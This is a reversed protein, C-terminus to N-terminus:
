REVTINIRIPYVMECPTGQCFAPKYEQDVVLHSVARVLEKSPEGYTTVNKAKGDKGILVNVALFGNEVGANDNVRTLMELLHGQGQTPFPPDDGAELAPYHARMTNRQPETLANWNAHPPLSGVAAEKRIQTGMRAEKIAYRGTALERPAVGAVRGDEFLGEYSRGSGAYVMKGQGHFVDHQWAGAYSGGTSFSAEGWGSREGLVWEGAYRSRDVALRIGKGHPIGAAVQGEYWGKNDAYEFFGQGHPVGAKLTGTYTYHPTKLIAEGVPEGRALTAEISYKEFKESRWGLVGKGSAHGDLCQGSWSVTANPPVRELPAIRCDPEGLARPEAARAPLAACAASLAFLCAFRNRM